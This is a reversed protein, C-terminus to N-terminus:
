RESSNVEHRQKLITDADSGYLPATSFRGVSTEEMLRVREIEVASGSCERAPGSMGSAM